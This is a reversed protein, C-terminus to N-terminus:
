PRLKMGQELAADFVQALFSPAFEELPYVRDEGEVHGSKNFKCGTLFIEKPEADYTLNYAALSPSSEALQIVEKKPMLEIEIRFLIRYGFYYVQLSGKSPGDRVTFFEALQEKEISKPIEAILKLGM